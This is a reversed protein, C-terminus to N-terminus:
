RTTPRVWRQELLTADRDIAFVRAGADLFARVVESGIIGARNLVVVKEDLRFSDKSM